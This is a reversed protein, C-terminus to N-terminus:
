KYSRKQPRAAKRSISHITKEIHEVQRFLMVVMPPDGFLNEALM